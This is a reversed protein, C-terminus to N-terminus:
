IWTHMYAARVIDFCACIM